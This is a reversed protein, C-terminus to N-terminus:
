KAGLLGALIAGLDLHTNANVNVDAGANLGLAVTVDADNVLSIDSKVDLLPGGGVFLHVGLDANLAAAVSADLTVTADLTVSNSAADVTKANVAPRVFSGLTVDASGKADQVTGAIVGTTLDASLNKLVVGAKTKVNVLGMCNDSLELKGALKADVATVDGSKVGLSLSTVSSVIDEGKADKPVSCDATLQTLVVGKAKLDALLKASLNLKVFGGDVPVPVPKPPPAAAEALTPVAAAGLALAGTLLVAPIRTRPM